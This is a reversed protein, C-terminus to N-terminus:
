SVTGQKGMRRSERADSMMAWLITGLAVVAFVLAAPHFYRACLVIGAVYALALTCAIGRERRRDELARGGIIWLQAASVAFLVSALWGFGLYFGYWSDQFGQADFKVTRMSELVADSAAGFRPTSILAGYSHLACYLLLVISASRYANWGSNM